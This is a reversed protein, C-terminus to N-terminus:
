VPVAHFLPKSCKGADSLSFVLTANVPGGRQQLLRCSCDV